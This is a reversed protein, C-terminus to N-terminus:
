ECASVMHPAPATTLLLDEEDSERKTTFPTIPRSPIMRTDEVAPATQPSKRHAENDISEQKPPTRREPAAATFEEEAPPIIGTHPSEATVAKPGFAEGVDTDSHPTEPVKSGFSTRLGPQVSSLRVENSSTEIRSSLQHPLSEM